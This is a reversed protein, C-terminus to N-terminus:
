LCIQVHFKTRSIHLHGRFVIYDDIIIPFKLLFNYFTTFYLFSHLEIPMFNKM